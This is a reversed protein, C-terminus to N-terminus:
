TPEKISTDVKTNCVTLHFPTSTCTMPPLGLEVRIESLRPCRVFLWFYERDQRPIPEYEFELEEDHYKRWFQQNPAQERDGYIVSVHAGHMPTNLKLMPREKQLLAKYYRCIEDDTNLRLWRTYYCLKGKARFLKM